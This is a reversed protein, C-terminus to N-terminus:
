ALYVIHNVASLCSNPHSRVSSVEPIGRINEVSLGRSIKAVFIDAEPATRLLLGAVHTGHGNDDIAPGGTFSTIAKVPDDIRGPQQQRRDEIITKRRTKFDLDQEDLGTDLVAIKVRPRAEIPKMYRERFEGLLEFFEDAYIAERILTLGISPM